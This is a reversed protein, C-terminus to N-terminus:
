GWTDSGSGYYASGPSSRDDDEIERYYRREEEEAELDRQYAEYEEDEIAMTKDRRDFLRVVLDDFDLRLSGDSGPCECSYHSVEVHSDYGWSACLGFEDEPRLIARLIPIWDILDMPTRALSFCDAHAETTQGIVHGQETRAQLCIYFQWNEPARRGEEPNYV